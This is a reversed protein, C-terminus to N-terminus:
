TRRLRVAAEYLANTSVGRESAVERAADKLRRGRDVLALVDGALEEPEPVTLVAGGLVVTIEGLVEREGAWAALEGLGGRVVEEYTKTLERCM